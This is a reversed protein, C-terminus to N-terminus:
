TPAKAHDLVGRYTTSTNAMARYFRERKTPQYKPKKPAKPNDKVNYKPNLKEIYFVEMRAAEDIPCPMFSFEDFDKTKDRRHERLRAGVNTSMGVYVIQNRHILFYVGCWVSEVPVAALLIASRCRDTADVPLVGTARKAREAITLNAEIAESAARSYQEGLRFLEGTKPHAWYFCGDDDSHSLGAPWLDRRQMMSKM